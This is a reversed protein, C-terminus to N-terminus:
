LAAFQAAQKATWLVTIEFGNETQQESRVVDQRFLWARKGGDAGRRLRWGGREVIEAPAWTADLAQFLRNPTM